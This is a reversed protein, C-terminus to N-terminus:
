NSEPLVDRYRRLMKNERKGFWINKQTYDSWNDEACNEFAVTVDRRIPHLYTQDFIDSYYDPWDFAFSLREEPMGPLKIVASQFRLLDEFLLPDDFLGALYDRLDEYFASVNEICRLFLGERFYLYADSFTPNYYCLSGNGSLFHDLNAFVEDCIPKVYRSKTEIWDYLKTYFDYYSLDRAKRLYISIFKLLGFSHLSQVCTAIRMAKKWDQENMTDTSVIIESRSSYTTNEPDYVTHDQYLARVTRIHYKERLEKSYLFTNPLVECPHISISTHQGAELARFVGRVFSDYTEGPLALIFDTYTSMGENRYKEMQEAFNKISINKRGINELVVPSFSQVAMSIGCCLHEQNLKRHIEFVVDDKNKAAATEFMKPYGYKKKCAIIRDAILSDRDLIGFNSDACICFEIKNQAIWDIDALVRELPFQRFNNDTGAWYCYICGYPCGRNTELIADFDLGEARGKQLLSDFYGSSYPSPYSSVDRYVLKPTHILKGNERFSINNVTHFDLGTTLGSLLRYLTQEGEGHLLIDIFDYKELFETDDPVQQGGFAIICDPWRAKIHEALSLNYEVNWMYCSFGAFYPDRISDCVEEVPDKKYIFDCLRYESKIEDFQWTYAALAGVTYPLYVKDGIINNPQILYVNKM